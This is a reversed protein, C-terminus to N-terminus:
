TVPTRVHAKGNQFDQSASVPPPNTATSLIHQLDQAASSTSPALFSPATTSFLSPVFANTHKRIRQQLRWTKDQPRWEFVTAEDQRQGDVYTTEEHITFDQAGLAGFSAPDIQERVVQEILKRTHPDAKNARSFISRLIRDHDEPTTSATSSMLTPISAPTSLLQPKPWQPAAPPQTFLGTGQPFASPPFISNPGPPLLLSKAALSVTATSTTATSLPAPALLSTPNLFPASLPLTPAPNPDNSAAPAPSEDVADTSSNVKDAEQDTPTVDTEAKGEAALKKQRKAAHSALSQAEKEERKRKKAAKIEEAAEAQKRQKEEALRQKELREQEKKEEARKKEEEQEKLIEDEENEGMLMMMKKPKQTVRPRPLGGSSSLSLSPSSLAPGPPRHVGAGPGGAPPPRSFPSPAKPLVARSSLQAGLATPAGPAAGAPKVQRPPMRPTPKKVTFHANKQATQTAAPDILSPDLFSYDLPYFSAKNQTQMKTKLSFITSAFYQNKLLEDFAMVGRDAYTSIFAGMAQVWDDDDDMALQCLEKVDQELEKLSM